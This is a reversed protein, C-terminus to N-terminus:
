EVAGNNTIRYHTIQLNEKTDASHDWKHWIAAAASLKRGDRLRAEICTDPPVPCSGGDHEIWSQDEDYHIGDNGNQFIPVMRDDASAPWNEKKNGAGREKYAAEGALGAYSAGDEYSDARFEGQQSRVAKLLQMFLWGREETNMLGDGTVANFATVTAAMSRECEPNDYTTARDEMHGLGALLFEKAQM